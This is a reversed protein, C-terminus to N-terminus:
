CRGPAFVLHEGTVTTFTAQPEGTGTVFGVSRIGTTRADPDVSAYVVGDYRFQPRGCVGLGVQVVHDRLLVVPVGLVVLVTLAAARVGRHAAM